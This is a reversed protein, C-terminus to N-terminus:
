RLFFTGHVYTESLCQARVKREGTEGTRPGMLAPFRTSANEQFLCFYVRANCAKRGSKRYFCTVKKSQHQIKTRIEKKYTRESANISGCCRQNLFCMIYLIFFTRPNRRFGRRWFFPLHNRFYRTIRKQFFNTQWAAPAAHGDLLVATRKPPKEGSPM